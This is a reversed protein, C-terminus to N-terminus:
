AVSRQWLRRVKGSATGLIVRAIWEKMEKVMKARTLPRGDSYRFLPGAGPGRAVMFTLVASVPCLEDQTHGIHVDLGKRFPDTKSAKLRVRLARPKTINDVLIDQFSLHAGM